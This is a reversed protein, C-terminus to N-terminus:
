KYRRQQSAWAIKSFIVPMKCVIYLHVYKEYTLLKIIIYNSDPSDTFIGGNKMYLPQLMKGSVGALFM